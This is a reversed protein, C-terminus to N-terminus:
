SKKFLDIYWSKVKAYYHVSDSVLTKFESLKTDRGVFNRPILFKETSQTLLGPMTTLGAEWNEKSLVDVVGKSYKGRPYALIKRTPNVSNLFNLSEELEKKIEEKNLTPLEKHSFSHSLLEFNTFSEFRKFDEVSFVDLIVKDSTTFKSGLLAPAIFISGKINYKRLIPLVNELNDLYGDDFTLSVSSSIDERKLFRNVLDSLPIIKLGKKQLYQMQKEFEKPSVTFFGNNEAVSHYMLISAGKSLRPYLTYLTKRLLIKM